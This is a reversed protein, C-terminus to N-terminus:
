AQKGLPSVDLSNVTTSATFDKINDLPRATGVLSHKGSMIPMPTRGGKSVQVKTPRKFPSLSSKGKAYQHMNDTM